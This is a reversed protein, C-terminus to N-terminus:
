AAQQVKEKAAQYDKLERSARALEAQAAAVKEQAMEFKQRLEAEKLDLKEADDDDNASVLELHPRLSESASDTEAPGSDYVFEKTNELSEGGEDGFEKTWNDFGPNERTPQDTLNADTKLDGGRAMTSGHTNSKENLKLAGSRTAEARSFFKKFM